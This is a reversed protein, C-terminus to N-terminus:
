DEAGAEAKAKPQRGRKKPEPEDVEVVAIPEEGEGLERCVGLCRLKLALDADVDVAVGIPFEVGRLVYTELETRKEVPKGGLMPYGLHDKEIQGSPRMAPRGSDDMVPFGRSDIVPVERDIYKVTPTTEVIEFGGEYVFRGPGQKMQELRKYQQRNQGRRNM